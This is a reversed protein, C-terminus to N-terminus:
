DVRWFPGPATELQVRGRWGPRCTVDADPTGEAKPSLKSDIGLSTLRFGQNCTQGSAVAGYNNTPSYRFSKGWPDQHDALVAPAKPPYCTSRGKRFQPDKAIAACAKELRSLNESVDGRIDTFLADVQPKSGPNLSQAQIALGMALRYSGNDLAPQIPKLYLTNVVVEADWEKEHILWFGPENAISPHSSLACKRALAAAAKLLGDHLHTGLAEYHTFFDKFPKQGCELKPALKALKARYLGSLQEVKRKAREDNAFSMLKLFRKEAVDMQNAGLASAGSLYLAELHDPRRELFPNILAQAKQHQKAELAARSWRIAKAERLFAVGLNILFWFGIISILILLARDIWPPWGAPARLSEVIRSHGCSACFSDAASTNQRCLTCTQM